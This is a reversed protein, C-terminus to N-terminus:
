SAQPANKLLDEVRPRKPPPIPISGGSLPLTSSAGGLLSATPVVTLTDDEWYFREIQSWLLFRGTKGFYDEPFQIGEEYFGFWNFLFFRISYCAFLVAMGWEAPDGRLALITPVIALAATIAALTYGNLRYEPPIRFLLKGRQPRM